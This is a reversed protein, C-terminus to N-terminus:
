SFNKRHGAAATFNSTVRHYLLPPGLSSLNTGATNKKVSCFGLGSYEEQDGKLSCAISIDPPYSTKKPRALPLVPIVVRVCTASLEESDSVNVKEINTSFNNGSIFLGNKFFVLVWLEDGIQMYIQTQIKLSVSSEVAEMPLLAKFNPMHRFIFM